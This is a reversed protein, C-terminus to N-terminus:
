AGPAERDCLDEPYFQSWDESRLSATLSALGCQGAGAEEQEAEHALRELLQDSLRRLEDPPLRETQKLISELKSM